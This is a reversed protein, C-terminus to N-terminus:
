PNNFIETLFKSLINRDPKADYEYIKNNFELKITPYGNINFRDAMDNEKDCDVEKFLITYGLFTGNTNDKFATWETKAKKSLPCWDTYFFYLTAVTDKSSDSDKSIFERNDAYNKTFTPKVYKYYYVFGIAFFIVLFIAITIRNKIFIKKINDFKEAFYM